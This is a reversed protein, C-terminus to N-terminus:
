DEGDHGGNQAEAILADAHRFAAEAIVQPVDDIRTLIAQAMMAAIHLRNQERFGDKVINDIMETADGIHYKDCNATEQSLKRSEVMNEEPETYPELDSAQYFQNMDPSSYIADSAGRWERVEIIEGDSKRRAKM